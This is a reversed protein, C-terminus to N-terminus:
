GPSRASCSRTLSPAIPDQGGAFLEEIHRPRDIHLRAGLSQYIACQLDRKLRESVEDTCWSDMAVRDPKSGSLLALWRERPTM